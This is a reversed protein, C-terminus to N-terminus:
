PRPTVSATSGPAPAPPQTDRWPPTRAASALADDDTALQQAAGPAVVAPLTAWAAAWSRRSACARPKLPLAGPVGPPAGRERRGGPPRRPEGGAGDSWFQCGLNFLRAQQDHGVSIGGRNGVVQ